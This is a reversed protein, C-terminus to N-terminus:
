STIGNRSAHVSTIAVGPVRVVTVDASAVGHRTLTDLCGAELQAVIFGNFRASIIAIRAQGTVVLRGEITSVQQM